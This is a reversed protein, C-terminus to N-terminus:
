RSLSGKESAATKGSTVKKGHSLPTGPIRIPLGTETDVAGTTTGGVSSSRNPLPSASRGQQRESVPSAGEEKAQVGESNGEGDRESSVKSATAKIYNRFIIKKLKLVLDDRDSLREACCFVSGTGFNIKFGFPKFRTPPDLGPCASLAVDTCDTLPWSFERPDAHSQGGQTPSTPSGSRNPGSPSRVDSLRNPSRLNASKFGGPTALYRFIIRSGRLVWETRSWEAVGSRCCWVIYSEGAVNKGGSSQGDERTRLGSPSRPTDQPRPPLDHVEKRLTKLFAQAAAMSEACFVVELPNVGDSLRLRIGNKRFQQPAKSNMMASLQVELINGVPLTGQPKSTNPLAWAIAGDHLTVWVRNWHEVVAPLICKHMWCGRRIDPKEVKLKQVTTQEEATATFSKMAELTEAENVCHLTLFEVFSRYPCPFELQIFGEGTGRISQEAFEHLPLVQILLHGSEQDLCPVGNFTTTGLSEFFKKTITVAADSVFPFPPHQVNPYEAHFEKDIEVGLVVDVRDSLETLMLNFLEGQAEQLDLQMRVGTEEDEFMRRRLLNWERLAVDVVDSQWTASWESDIANRASDEAKSLEEVAKALKEEPTPSPPKPPTAPKAPTSGAPPEPGYKNVLAAILEEERGAYKALTKEANPVLHDAYKAYIATVRSLYDKESRAPTSATAEPEPGYKKVLAEILAEENGAYKEMTKDVSAVKDPQYKAYLATIRDRYSPKAAPTAAAPTAASPTAAVAPEPGYKKVLAEILAEENGAYKELTKDVSAVKDPQYKAYLATIRDKYSAPGAKAPTGAVTAAAAQAEPEPGYKKVLAEILAEENGAYKEMTKDVSAVKDPQYKAYLATIRDKYSPKGAPTAAQAAPSAPAPNPTSSGSSAAPEPGYKKVLADILAEENGAYKEMTKDVSAVKDPQYKAYLAIIRDKYTPKGAAVPSAGPTSPAPNPTSSGSGSKPEPGYKKVLADILAEENGAYKEMTKDVSAVKDPQYKAYLAVIRDRYSPKGAPTSPTAAPAPNPTSSGSAPKPEPGYKKVLADILAEENGAYKEMTKDVSAVKDPQYKQYLAVIRDRYSSSSKVPTNSGPPTNSAVSSTQATSARSEDPEPGYKKVLAEILADENGAYKELTKDVSGVKDPQYKQYMSMVRERYTLNMSSMSSATASFMQSTTSELAATSSSGAAPEPGYKKVLADILQEEAGAYKEMTKDVTSVKDPAYKAYMAAVRDRYSTTSSSPLQAPTAPSAPEAVKATPTPSSPTSAPASAASETPEPGYKKVLAEILQEEAGAYKELTKDVSSVKDPQYKAYMAVVRDRYSTGKRAPAPSPTVASNSSTSSVDSVGPEPGYKKVLAEILADENGAYKELTKDVSGVKDPQYKQYLSMVRERYTLNMSAVSSATASFMQSSTSELALPPSAAGTSGAAPEPGHKKVLADILQEEAGAYKEMTKDVTSVKDPAYKAYMAAVRDRYSSGSAVAPAATGQAPAPSTPAAVPSPPDPTKAAAVAQSASPQLADNGGAASGESPSPEPGYKKVLADILQEEAGAYKEMTKDVSSVKDPAYKAYLAAVRDRYSASQNTALAPPTPEAAAFSQSTASQLPPAATTSNSEPAPTSGAAPEPGYKKVLADILQEEAGAYKEMTKDVTSVKDPAYKAYLAAVRDRYSSGSAVAPPPVTGLTPAPSAPDAAPPNPQDPAKAAVVAQSASPQLAGEGGAVPGESPSPEPGYKKVLADILQEEAGAYKEMTKDVTSVKDPAYKAYM